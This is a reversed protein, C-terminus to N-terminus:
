PAGSPDGQLPRWDGSAVFGAWYHPSATRPEHLMELQVRRLAGARSEGALLRRYYSELLALRADDASTWLNLLQSRSGALALASRLETTAAGRAADVSYLVALETGLLDMGSVELASFTAEGRGELNAGALALGSRRLSDAPAGQRAAAGDSEPLADLSYGRTAVHLIRPSHALELARRNAREGLRAEVGLLDAVARIERAAGSLPEFYLGPLMAAVSDSGTPTNFDPAGLVLARSSRPLPANMGLLSRGSTLYVFGHSQLRYRDQGDVLAGFPISGLAGDPSVFIREAEGLLPDLPRLVLADLVEAHGRAAEDGPTSLSVRLAEAAGDIPEAPGLDRWAIRGDPYLLYAAYRADGWREAPSRPDFARRPDFSRFRFLELLAASEPLAAAVGDVTVADPDLLEGPRARAELGRGKRRLVTRLALRVAEPSDHGSSSHFSAILETTRQQRGLLGSGLSAVRPDDLHALLAAESDATRRLQELARAHDGMAWYLAARRAHLDAVEPHASGLLDLRIRLSREYLADARAYECRARLLEAQNDLVGAASLGAEPEHTAELIGLAHERLLSAREWDGLSQATNALNSASYAM